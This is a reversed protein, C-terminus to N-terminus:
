VAETSGQSARRVLDLAGPLYQVNTSLGLRFEPLSEALRGQRLLVNALRWRVSTDFPALSKALELQKEAGARDGEAEKVSALTLYNHFDYPSLEVARAAHLDARALDRDSEALEAEALRAHLRPSGTLYSTPILLTDRNVGIRYDALTGAVYRTAIAYSLVLAAVIVAGGFVIRRRVTKFS